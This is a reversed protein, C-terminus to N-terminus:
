EEEILGTLVSMTVYQSQSLTDFTVAYARQGASPNNRGIRPRTLGVRDKEDLQGLTKNLTRERPADGRGHTTWCSVVAEKSILVCKKDRRIEVGAVNQHGHLKAANKAALAIVKIVDPKIGQQGIFQRHWDTMVGSVLFRGTHQVTRNERLWLLHEGILGPVGPTREAWLATARRGGLAELYRVPKDDQEVFLVREVIAQLSRGSLTKRFDLADDENATIVLRMCAHLTANAQYKIRVDHVSNAVLNRFVESLDGKDIPVGEDASVVPADLLSANFDAAVNSFPVPAAGWMAGLGQLLMSKGSGPLGHVYLSCVPFQTLTAVSLWDLFREPDSGGFLTLWEHVQEHYRPQLDRHLAHVGIELTNGEQNPVFSAGRQGTVYRVTTTSNGYQRLVIEVNARGKDDLFEVSFPTRNHILADYHMPLCQKDTLQYTPATKDRLDLMYLSGSGPMAVLLPTESCFLAARKEDDTVVDERESRVLEACRLCQEWLKLCDNLGTTATEYFMSYLTMADTLALKRSMNFVCTHLKDESQSKPTFPMGSQLRHLASTFRRDITRFWENWQDAGIPQPKLPREPEPEPPRAVLGRQRNATWVCLKWAEARTRGPTADVSRAVLSFLVEPDTVPGEHAASSIARRMARYTSGEADPPFPLGRKLYPQRWAAKWDDLDMDERPEPADGVDCVDAFNDEELAGWRYPDISVEGIPSLDMYSALISGDRVCRPLRFLRNWEASSEDSDIGHKDKLEGMLKTMLSRYRAVPVPTELSWVLRYGARTTYFAASYLLSDDDDDDDDALLAEVHEQAAELSEWHAHGPLDVDVVALNAVVEAGLGELVPLAALNLRPLTEEGEVDYAVFMYEGDRLVDGLRDPSWRESHLLQGMDAVGDWGPFRAGKPVRPFVHIM